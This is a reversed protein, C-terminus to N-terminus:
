YNINDDWVIIQGSFQKPWKFWALLDDDTLGDNQAIISLNIGKKTLNFHLLKGNVYIRGNNSITFDYVKKVQTDPALIIQKSRYPLGSWIRPSFYDGPKWRHGARITHGKSAEIESNLNAHFSHIKDEGPRNAFKINLQDINLHKLKLWYRIQLSNYFKEVFYTPQGKHPHYAPFKTSFPLVRAM